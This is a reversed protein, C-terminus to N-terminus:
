HCPDVMKAVFEKAERLTDFSVADDYKGTPTYRTGNRYVWFLRHGIASFTVQRITWRVGGFLAVFNGLAGTIWKIMAHDRIYRALAIAEDRTIPKNMIVGKGM